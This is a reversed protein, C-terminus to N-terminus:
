ATLKRRSVGAGVVQRLRTAPATRNQHRSESVSAFPTSAHRAGVVAAIYPCSM